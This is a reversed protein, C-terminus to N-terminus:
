QNNRENSTELRLAGWDWDVKCWTAFRSVGVSGYHEECTPVSKEPHERVDDTWTIDGARIYCVSITTPSHIRVHTGDPEIVFLEDVEGDKLKCGVFLRQVGSVALEGIAYGGLDYESFRVKGDFNADSPNIPILAYANARDIMDAASVGCVEATKDHLRRVINSAIEMQNGDHGPRDRGADYADVDSRYQVRYLGQHFDYVDPTYIAIPTEKTGVKEYLSSITWMDSTRVRRSSGPYTVGHAENTDVTVYDGHAYKPQLTTWYSVTREYAASATINTMVELGTASFDYYENVSSSSSNTPGVTRTVYIHGDDKIPPGPNSEEVTMWVAYEGDPELDAYFREAYARIIENDVTLEAFSNPITDTYRGDADLMTTADTPGMQSITQSFSTFLENMKGDHYHCNSVRSYYSTVIVGSDSKTEPKFGWFTVDDEGGEHLVLKGDFGTIKAVDKWASYTLGTTITENTAGCSYFNFKAYTRDLSGLCQGLGSVCDTNLRRTDNTGLGHAKFVSNSKPEDYELTIVHAPLTTSSRFDEAPTLDSYWIDPGSVDFSIDVPVASTERCDIEADEPFDDIMYMNVYKGWPYMNTGVNITGAYLYALAYGDEGYDRAFGSPPGIRATVHIKAPVDSQSSYEGRVINHVEMLLWAGDHYVGDPTPVYGELIDDKTLFVDRRKRETWVQWLGAYPAGIVDETTNTISPAAPIVVKRWNYRDDWPWIPDTNHDWPNPEGFNVSVFMDEALSPEYGFMDCTWNIGDDDWAQHGWLLASNNWQNSTVNGFKRDRSNYSTWDFTPIFPHEGGPTLLDFSTSSWFYPGYGSHAMGVATRWTPREVCTIDRLYEQTIVGALARINDYEALRRTNVVRNTDNYFWRDVLWTTGNTPMSFAFIKLWKDYGEIGRLQPGYIGVDWESIPGEAAFFARELWGEFLANVAKISEVDIRHTANTADPSGYTRESAVSQEGLWDPLDFFSGLQPSSLHTASLLSCAFLLLNM